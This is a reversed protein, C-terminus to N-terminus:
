ARLRRRLRELPAHAAAAAGLGGGNGFLWLAVDDPALAAAFQTIGTAQLEAVARAAGWEPPTVEVVRAVPPRAALPRGDGRRTLLAVDYAGLLSYIFEPAALSDAFGLLVLPRM